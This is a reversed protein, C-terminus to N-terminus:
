SYTIHPLKCAEPVEAVVNGTLTIQCTLRETLKLRGQNRYKQEAASLHSINQMGEVVRIRCTTCRGKGGCAHMWDVTALQIHYLASKAPHTIEIPKNFLNRIILTPM